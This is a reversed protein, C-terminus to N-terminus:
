PLRYDGYGHWTLKLSSNQFINYQDSSLYSISEIIISPTMEYIEGGMVPLTIIAQIDDFCIETEVYPKLVQRGGVFVIVTNPYGHKGIIEEITIKTSPVITVVRVIDSKQEYMLSLGMTCNIGRVGGVSEKNFDTCTSIGKESIIQKVKAESTIGPTIGWFCPPTCNIDEILLGGDGLPPQTNPNNYTCGFTLLLLFTSTIIPNQILRMVAINRKMIGVM